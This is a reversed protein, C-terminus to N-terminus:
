CHTTEGGPTRGNEQGNPTEEEAIVRTDNSRRDHLRIERVVHARWRTSFRSADDAGEGSTRNQSCQTDRIKSIYESSLLRYRDGDRSEYM